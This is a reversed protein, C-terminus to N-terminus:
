SREDCRTAIWAATHAALPSATITHDGIAKLWGSVIEMRGVNVYSYWHAAMVEVAVDTDGAALAHGIAEEPSGHARFWESARRHLLPTLASEGSDSRTRM